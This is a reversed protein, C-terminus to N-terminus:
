DRPRLESVEKYEEKRNLREKIKNTKELMEEKLIDPSFGHNRANSVLNQVALDQTYLMQDITDSYSQFSSAPNRFLGDIHEQVTQTLAKMGKAQRYADTLLKLRHELYIAANVERGNVEVKQGTLSSLDPIKKTMFSSFISGLGSNDKLKSSVDIIDSTLAIINETPTKADNIDNAEKTMETDKDKSTIYEPLAVLGPKIKVGQRREGSEPDTWEVIEKGKLFEKEDKPMGKKIDEPIGARKIGLEARKASINGKEKNIAALSKEGEISRNERQSSISALGQAAGGLAGIGAEKGFVGAIIAPMSLALGIYFKDMTTSNGSDIRNKIAAMQYDYEGEIAALDEDAGTLIAEYKTILDKQAENFNIGSYTAFEKQLDPNRFFEDTSGYVAEGEPNAQGSEVKELNQLKEQASQNIQNERQQEVPIGRREQRSEEIKNRSGEFIKRKREDAQAKEESLPILTETYGKLTKGLGLFDVPEKQPPQKAEDMYQGTDVGLGSFKKEYQKPHELVENARVDYAQPSLEGGMDAQPMNEVQAEPNAIGSYNEEPEEQEQLFNMGPQVKRRGSVNKLGSLRAINGIGESRYPLSM